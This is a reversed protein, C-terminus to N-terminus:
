AVAAAEHPRDGPAGPQAHICSQLAQGWAKMARISDAKVIQNVVNNPLGANMGQLGLCIGAALRSVLKWADMCQQNELRIVLMARMTLEVLDGAMINRIIPGQINEGLSIRLVLAVIPMEM